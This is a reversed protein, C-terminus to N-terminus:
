AATTGEARQKAEADRMLTLYTTELSARRVELDRVAEGDRAYLGRVFAAADDVERRHPRGHETWRVEDHGAFRRAVPHAGSAPDASVLIVELDVDPQRLVSWLTAALGDCTPSLPVIVSLTAATTM